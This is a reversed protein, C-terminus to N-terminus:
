LVGGSKRATELALEEFINDFRARIGTADEGRITELAVMADRLKVRAEDVHHDGLIRGYSVVRETITRLESLFTKIRADGVDGRLRNAADLANAMQIRRQGMGPPVNNLETAARDIAESKSAAAAARENALRNLLEDVEQGLSRAIGARLQDSSAVPLGTIWDSGFVKSLAECLETAVKVHRQPVYWGLGFRTARLNGRLCRGLWTTIDSAKYREAAVRGAFTELVSDGMKAPGSYTLVDGVLRFSCVVDGASDGVSGHHRISAVTWNREGAVKAPAKRVVYGSQNLREITDGAHAEPSAARPAWEPLGVAELVQVIAGRTTQTGGWSVIAGHGEAVAGAIMDTSAMALVPAKDPQEQTPGVVMPGPLNLRAIDASTMGYSSRLTTLYSHYTHSPVGNRIATIYGERTTFGVGRMQGGQMSGIGHVAANATGVAAIAQLDDTLTTVADAAGAALDREHATTCAALGCMGRHGAHDENATDLPPASSQIQVPPNRTVRPAIDLELLDTISPEPIATM